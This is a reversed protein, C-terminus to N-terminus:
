KQGGGQGSTPKAGSPKGDVNPGKDGAETPKDDGEAPKNGDGHVDATEQAAKVAAEQAEQAEREAQEAAKRAKIVEASQLRHPLRQACKSTVWVTEGPEAFYRAGTEPNIASFRKHGVVTREVLGKKPDQESM